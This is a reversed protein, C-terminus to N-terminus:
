IKDKKEKGSKSLKNIFVMNENQLLRKLLYQVLVSVRNEDLARLFRCVNVM